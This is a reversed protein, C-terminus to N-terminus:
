SSHPPPPFLGESFLVARFTRSEDDNMALVAITTRGIESIGVVEHGAWEFHDGWRDRRPHFLRTMRASVPDLGAINPGKHSNCHPCICALNDLTTPGGHQRALIHDIVLPYPLLTAPMRCYECMWGARDRVLRRLAEDM